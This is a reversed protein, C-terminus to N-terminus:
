QHNRIIVPGAIVPTCKVLYFPITFFFVFLGSTQKCFMLGFLPFPSSISNNKLQTLYKAGNSQM